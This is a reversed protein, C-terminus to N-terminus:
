STSMAMTTLHRVGGAPTPLDHGAQGRIWISSSEKGVNRFLTGNRMHVRARDGGRQRPHGNVIFWDRLGDDDFDYIRTGWGM